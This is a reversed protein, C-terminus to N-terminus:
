VDQLQNGRNGSTPNMLVGFSGANPVLQSLLGLRKTELVATFFSVGTINGGPRNLAEVLGFRLPDNGMAFVVPIATSVPKAALATHVGGPAVLVAVKRGALEAVLAPLREYHGEAFQYEVEVIRGEVFGTEALGQRFGVPVPSSAAVGSNLFGVFPMAPQQARAALPWSAAAGGLLAIFNRRRMCFQGDLVFGVLPCCQADCCFQGASSRWPDNVDNRGDRCTRDAGLASM